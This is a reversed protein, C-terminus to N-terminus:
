ERSGNLSEREIYVYTSVTIHWSHTEVYWGREAFRYTFYMYHSIQEFMYFSLFIRNPQIYIYKQM